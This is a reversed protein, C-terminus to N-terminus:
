RRLVQAATRSRPKLDGASVSNCWSRLRASRTSRSMTLSSVSATRMSEFSCYSSSRFNPVSKVGVETGLDLFASSYLTDVNARVVDKFSADPFARVNAFQNLPGGFAVPGAFNSTKDKTVDMIVLPYGYIVAEVGAALAAKEKDAAPPAAPAQALLMAPAAIGVVAALSVFIRRNLLM